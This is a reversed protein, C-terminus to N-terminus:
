SIRLVTHIGSLDTLDVTEGVRLSVIRSIDDAAYGNTDNFFALGVNEMHPNGYGEGWYALFTIQM